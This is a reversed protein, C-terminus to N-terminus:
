HQWAYGHVVLEQLPPLQGVNEVKPNEFPNSNSFVEDRINLRKPFSEVPLMGMLWKVQFKMAANTLKVALFGHGSSKRLWSLHDHVNVHTNEHSWGYVSSLRGPSM